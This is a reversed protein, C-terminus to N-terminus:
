RAKIDSKSMERKEPCKSGRSDWEAEIAAQHRKRIKERAACFNERSAFRSILAYAARNILSESKTEEAAIRSTARREKESNEKPTL